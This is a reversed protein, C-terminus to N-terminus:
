LPIMSIPFTMVSFTTNSLRITLGRHLSFQDTCGQKSNIIAVKLWSLLRAKSTGDESAPHATLKILKAVVM